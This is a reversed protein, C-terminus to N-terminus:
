CRTRLIEIEQRQKEILDYQQNIIVVRSKLENQQQQIIGGADCLDRHQEKRLEELNLNEATLKTVTSELDKIVDQYRVHEHEEM